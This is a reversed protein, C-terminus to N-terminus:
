FPSSHGNKQPPRLNTILRHFFAGRMDVESSSKLLYDLYTHTIIGGVDLQKVDVLWWWGCDIIYTYAYIYIYLSLYTRIANRVEFLNKQESRAQHQWSQDSFM